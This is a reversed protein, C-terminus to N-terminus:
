RIPVRPRDIKLRFSPATPKRSSSVSLAALNHVNTQWVFTGGIVLIRGDSTAVVSSDFPFGGVQALVAVPAWTDWTPNYEFTPSPLSSEFEQGTLAYLDGNVAAVFGVISPVGTTPNNSLTSWSDAVPDYRLLPIPRGAPVTALCYIFGDNATTAFSIGDGNPPPARATWTDTTPNYELTQVGWGGIGYLSKGFAYVTGNAAVAAFMGVQIDNPLPSLSRWTDTTPIYEAVASNVTLGPAPGPACCGGVAYIMGNAAGVEAAEFVGTPAASRKTWSNTTPDYVDVPVPAGPNAALGGILYVKGDSATTAIPLTRADPVNPGRTWESVPTPTPALVQTVLFNQFRADTNTTDDYTAAILGFQGSTLDSDSIPGATLSSLSNTSWVIQSGSRTVSLHEVGQGAVAGGSENMLQTWNDNEVKWMSASTLFPDFLFAYMSRGDPSIDFAIGYLGPGNSALSADVKVQFSTASVGPSAEAIWGSQRVLIQYQGNLYGRRINGDDGIPWGTTPNTFNDDFIVLSIPFGHGTLPVYVRYISQGSSVSWGAVLLAVLCGFAM